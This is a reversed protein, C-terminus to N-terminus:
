LGFALMLTGAGLSGLACLLVVVLVTRSVTM